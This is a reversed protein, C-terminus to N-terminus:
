VQNHCRVCGYTQIDVYYFIIIIIIVASNRCIINACKQLDFCLILFHNIDGSQPQLNDIVM